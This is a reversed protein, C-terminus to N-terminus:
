NRTQWAFDLLKAKYGQTLALIVQATAKIEDDEDENSDELGSKDEELNVWHKM